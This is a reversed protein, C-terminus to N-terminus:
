GHHHKEQLFSRVASSFEEPLEAASLHAAPLELCRVDPIGQKLIRIEIPTIVPDYSGAIVLASLAIRSLEQSLDADCLAACGAMYGEPSCTTLMKTFRAVEEAHSQRYAQTFWREAAGAALQAMGDTRILEMRARWGDSSGIRAATNALILSHVRSPAHISFAMAIIGGLSTGALHVRTLGLVDLLAILDRCFDAIRYPGPPVGSAGHGRVDFRLILHDAGLDETVRDWMSLDTGLSHILALVPGNAAGELRYHLRVSSLDVIPM